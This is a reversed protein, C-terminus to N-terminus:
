KSFHKTIQDCFTQSHPEPGILSDRKKELKYILRRLSKNCNEVNISEALAFLNYSEGVTKEYLKPDTDRIAGRLNMLISQVFSLEERSAITLKRFRREFSDALQILENEFNKVM